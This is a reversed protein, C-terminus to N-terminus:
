AGPTKTKREPTEMNELDVSKMNEVVLNCHAALAELFFQHAPGNQPLRGNMEMGVIQKGHKGVKGASV